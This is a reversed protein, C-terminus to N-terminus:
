QIMEPDCICSFIEDDTLGMKYLRKLKQYDTITKSNLINKIKNVNDM